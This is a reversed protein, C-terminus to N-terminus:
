SNSWLRLGLRATDSVLSIDSSDGFALSHLSTGAAGLAPMEVHSDGVPEVREVRLVKGSRREYTITCASEPGWRRTVMGRSAPPMFEDNALTTSVSWRLGFLRVEMRSSPSVTLTHGVSNAGAIRGTMKPEEDFIRPPSRATQFEACGGVAFFSVSSTRLREDVSFGGSVGLRAGSPVVRPIRDPLIVLSDVPFVRGAVTVAEVSELGVARTVLGRTISVGREEACRELVDYTDPSPAGHRWKTVVTRAERGEGALFDAVRLALFGEGTVLPREFDRRRGLDSYAQASSLLYVGPKRQGRLSTSKFISGTAAIVADFRMPRGDSRVIRCGEIAKVEVNIVAANRPVRPLPSAVISHRRLFLDPWHKWPPEPEPSMELVTVQAGDRSAEKAAEVGATGGGVVGVSLM